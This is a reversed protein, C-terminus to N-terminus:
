LEAEPHDDLTKVELDTSDDFAFAFYDAGHIEIISNDSRSRDMDIYVRKGDRLGALRDAGAVKEMDVTEENRGPHKITVKAGVRRGIVVHERTKYPKSRVHKNIDVIDLLGYWKKKEEQTMQFPRLSTLYEIESHL